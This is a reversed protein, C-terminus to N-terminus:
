SEAGQRVKHWRWGRWGKQIHRGGEKGGEKFAGIRLLIITFLHNLLAKTRSKRVM